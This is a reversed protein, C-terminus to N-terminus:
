QVGELNSLILSVEDRSMIIPLKLRTKARVFQSIDGIEYGLVNKLYFSIANLAVSQTRPAVQREIALYGLYKIVGHQDIDTRNQYRNFELFKQVWDTCRKETRISDNM